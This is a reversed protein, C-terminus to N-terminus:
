QQKRLHRKYAFHNFGRRVLYGRVISTVAFMAAMGMNATLPVNDIGYLPLILMQSFVGVLYGLIANTVTEIVSWRKEQM